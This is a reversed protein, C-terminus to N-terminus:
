NNHEESDNEVDSDTDVDSDTEAESDAFTDGCTDVEFETISDTDM